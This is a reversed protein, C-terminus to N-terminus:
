EASRIARRRFCRPTLRLHEDCFLRPVPLRPCREAQRTKTQRLLLFRQRCDAIKPHCADLRRAREGHACRNQGRIAVCFAGTIVRLQDAGVREQRFLAREDSRQQLAFVGAPLCSRACCFVIQVECWRFPEPGGSEGTRKRPAM